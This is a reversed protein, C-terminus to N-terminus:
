NKPSFPFHNYIFVARFLGINKITLLQGQKIFTVITVLMVVYLFLLRQFETMLDHLLFFPIPKDWKNLMRNRFPQSLLDIQRRHGGLGNVSLTISKIKFLYYLQIWAFLSKNITRSNCFLM